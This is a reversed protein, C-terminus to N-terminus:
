ILTNIGFLLLVNEPTFKASMLNSHNVGYSKSLNVYPHNRKSKSEELKIKKKQTSHKIEHSAKSCNYFDILNNCSMSVLLNNDYSFDISLIKDEFSNLDTDFPIRGNQTAENTTSLLKADLDTDFPKSKQTYETNNHGPKASIAMKPEVDIFKDMALDILNINNTYGGAYSLLRGNKSFSLSTVGQNSPYNNKFRKIFSNVRVDYLHVYNDYYGCAVLTSNYHYKSVNAPCNYTYTIFPYTRNTSYIRLNGDDESSCFFYGLFATDLSWIPTHGGVYKVYNKNSITSYLYVDGNVNGSLLIKNSEGFRLSTVNFMNGYLKCIGDNEDDYDLDISTTHNEELYEHRRTITDNMNVENIKEEEMNKKKKKIKNIQSQKINWLKIINNSHATAVLSGDLGSIEACTMDSCNNLCYYLMSPMRNKTVKLRNKKQVKLIHKYYYFADSSENPVYHNEDKECGPKNSEDEVSEDKTLYISPLSWTVPFDMKANYLFNASVFSNFFNFNSEQDKIEVIKIKTTILNYLSIGGYVTLYQWLSKKGLKTMHVVHKANKEKFRILAIEFMQSVNVCTTLFKTVPEYAAFKKLYKKKFDAIHEYSNTLILIFIELLLCFSVNQLQLKIQILNNEYWNIFDDFLTILQELDLNQREGKTDTLQEHPVASRITLNINRNINNIKEKLIDLVDRDINLNNLLTDLSMNKLLELNQPANNRCTSPTPSYPKNEMVGDSIKSSGLNDNEDIVDGFLKTLAILKRDSEMQEPSLATIEEGYLDSLNKKMKYSRLDDENLLDMSNLMSKDKDMFVNTENKNPDYNPFFYNKNNHLHNPDKVDEPFSLSTNLSANLSANLSENLSASLSANMHDGMQMDMHMNSIMSAGSTVHFGRSSMYGDTTQLVSQATSNFAGQESSETINYMYNNYDINKKEGKVNQDFPFLAGKENKTMEKNKDKGKEEKKERKKKRKKEEVQETKKLNEGDTKQETQANQNYPGLTDTENGNIANKGNSMQYMGTSYPTSSSITSGGTGVTLDITNMNNENSTDGNFHASNNGLKDLPVGNNDMKMEEYARSKNMIITAGTTTNANDNEKKNLVVDSDMKCMSPTMNKEQDAQKMIKSHSKYKKASTNKVKNNDKLHGKPINVPTAFHPSENANLREKNIHFKYAEANDLNTLTNADNNSNPMPSNSMDGTRMNQNKVIINGFPSPAMSANEPNPGKNLNSGEILHNYRVQKDENGSKHDKLNEVNKKYSKADLLTNPPAFFPKVSSPTTEAANDTGHHNVSSVGYPGYNAQENFLMNVAKNMHRYDADKVQNNLKAEALAEAHFSGKDNPSFTFVKNMGSKANMPTISMAKYMQPADLNKLNRAHTSGNSMGSASGSAGGSPTNGSNLSSLQKSSIYLNDKDSKGLMYKDMNKYVNELYEKERYQLMSSSQSDKVNKMKNNLPIMNNEVNKMDNVYFRNMNIGDANRFHKNNVSTQMVMKNSNYINAFNEANKNAGNSDQPSKGVGEAGLMKNNMEINSKMMTNYNVNNYNYNLNNMVNERLHNNNSKSFLNNMNRSASPIDSNVMKIRNKLNMDTQINVGTNSINVKSNMNSMPTNAGSRMISINGHGGSLTNMAGPMSSMGAPLSNMGSPLSHKGGPMNSMSGPMSNMGSPMGNAYGSMSHKMSNALSNLNGPMNKLNGHMKNMNSHLQAMGNVNSMGGMSCPVNLNSGVMGGSSNRINNYNENNNGNNSGNNKSFNNNKNNNNM